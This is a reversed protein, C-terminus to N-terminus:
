NRRDLAQQVQSWLLRVKEIEDPPLSDRYAAKIHKLAAALDAVEDTLGMAMPWANLITRLPGLERRDCWLNTLRTIEANVDLPASM